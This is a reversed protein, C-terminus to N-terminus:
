AFGLTSVTDFRGHLAYSDIDKLVSAAVVASSRPQAVSPANTALASIEGMGGNAYVRHSTQTAAPDAIVRATTLEWSGAAIALAAAVNASSPFQRTVLAAPGEALVIEENGATLRAVLGTDMWPQILTAPLKRSEITASKLDGVAALARVYELGGIAGTTLLVRGPGTALANRVVADALAGISLLLVDTGRSVVAPIREAVAPQTAAEVLLDIGDPMVDDRGVVAVVDYPRADRVYAQM